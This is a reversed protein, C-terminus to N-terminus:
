DSLQSVLSNEVPLRTEAVSMLTEEMGEGLDAIMM